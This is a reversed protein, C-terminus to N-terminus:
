EILDVNWNAAQIKADLERRKKSLEDARERMESVNVTSVFKVESRSYRSQSTSGAEALGAYIGRQLLLVDREALADALTVGSTLETLMNTRNIKQVLGLLTASVREVEQILTGPDEPPKDGDQVLASRVLRDRLQALRTQADARLILAEALKMM